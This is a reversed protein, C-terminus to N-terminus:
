QRDGNGLKDMFSDLLRGQDNRQFDRSILSSALTAASEALQARVRRKAAESLASSSMETDRHIREATSKALDAVKSVQFATEQELEDALKKLEASLAAMRAAAKNALDEAEALASAARSLATRITVARDAFFKKLAPGAFHVLVWVFLFFNIAFFMLLLWSGHEAGGEEAALAAQPFFAAAFIAASTIWKKM